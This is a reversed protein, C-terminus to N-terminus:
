KYDSMRLNLSTVGASVNLGTQAQLSLPQLNISQKFGGILVNAGLGLGVTAEAGAGTYSGKLSGPRAKGPAFVVWGLVTDTTVGIDVGLKGITGSYYERKGNTRRLECEMDKSSGIIFGAGGEIRCKLVGVKVAGAEAPAIAFTSVLLAASLIKKMTKREIDIFIIEGRLTDAIPGGFPVKHGALLTVKELSLAM